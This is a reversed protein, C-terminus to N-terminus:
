AITIAMSKVQQYSSYSSVRSGVHLIKPSLFERLYILGEDNAEQTVMCDDM